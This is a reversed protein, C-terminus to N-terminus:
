CQGVGSLDVCRRVGGLCEVADGRVVKCDRGLFCVHVYIYMFIYIYLYM